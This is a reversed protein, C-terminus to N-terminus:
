PGSSVSPRRSKLRYSGGGPLISFLGLTSKTRRCRSRHFRLTLKSARRESSPEASSNRSRLPHEPRGIAYRRAARVIAKFFAANRTSSAAVAPALTTAAPLRSAVRRRRAVERLRKGLTFVWAPAASVLFCWILRRFFEEGLEASSIRRIKCCFGPYLPM